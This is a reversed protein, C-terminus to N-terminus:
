LTELAETLKMDLVDKSYFSLSVNNSGDWEKMLYLFKRAVEKNYEKEVSQYYEIVQIM